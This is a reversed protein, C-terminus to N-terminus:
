IVLEILQIERGRNNIIKFTVTDRSRDYVNHWTILHGFHGNNSSSRVIWVHFLHSNAANSLHGNFLTVPVNYLLILQTARMLTTFIHCLDIQYNMFDHRGDLKWNVSGESKKWVIIKPVLYLKTNIQTNYGLVRKWVLPGLTCFHINRNNTCPSSIKWRIKIPDTMITLYNSKCSGTCDPGM